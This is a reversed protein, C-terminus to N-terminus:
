HTVMFIDISSKAALAANSVMLTTDDRFNMPFNYM